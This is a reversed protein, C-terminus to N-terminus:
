WPMHVLLYVITALAISFKVITGVIQGKFVSKAVRWAQQVDNTIHYEAFYSSLFGGLFAGIVSGVVPLFFTGILGGGITGVIAVGIALKSAKERKAWIAGMITEILEGFIIGAVVFGLSQLNIHVFNDYVAYGLVTLFLIINGPLGIITMGICILLVAIVIINIIVLSIEM